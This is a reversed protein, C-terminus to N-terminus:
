LIKELIPIIESPHEVTYEAGRAKFEEKSIQCWTVGIFHINANNATEMDIFTDGVLVTNSINYKEMVQYIGDPHPKAIKLKEAGIVSDFYERINCIDFGDYIVRSIKNSVMSITYGKQKLEELMEPIGDYTKIYVPLLEDCYKRYVEVAKLVEEETDLYKKFSDNLFPGFFTHAEEESMYYDPLIDKFTKIVVQEILKFTDVITGDCDFIVVKKSNKVEEVEIEEKKPELWISSEKKYLADQCSELRYKFVRRLIALALGVMFYLISVVIAIRIGTNGITLPDTRLHEIFFRVFGYWMLYFSIGDGVYIKKVKRRLIIYTIFGILNAISEYLFTPHYYGPCVFGSTSNDVIYMNDIIFDPILLKQLFERQELLQEPSLRGRIIEGSFPVLSGFAEQNVFNGWRGVVQALMIVPLVIELTKILDMKKIKCFIPIYILEAFIAGHIALGGDRPSIVDWFNKIDLAQYNFLVYYLRGGLIGFVVGLAFGTFVTDGDLGIKRLVGIYGFVFALLAGCLIIIAYWYVDLNLFDITFAIENCALINNM